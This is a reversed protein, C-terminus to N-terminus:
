KNFSNILKYLHKPSYVRWHLDNMDEGFHVYNELHVSKMENLVHERTNILYVWGNYEEIDEYWEEYYCDEDAHFNLVLDCLLIFKYIGQAILHDAIERKLFMIDNHICDNWEGMLEIICFQKSYDTYLLKIYLTPSGIFEWQPHIYYNYIKQTFTFENYNNGFFPSKEDDSAVYLDRWAHYPEIDHMICLTHGRCSRNNLTMAHTCHIM